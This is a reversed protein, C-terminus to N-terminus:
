LRSASYFAAALFALFAVVLLMAGLRAGWFLLRPVLWYERLDDPTRVWPLFYKGRLLWPRRALDGLVPSAFLDNFLATESEINARLGVSCLAHLLMGAGILLFLTEDMTAGM